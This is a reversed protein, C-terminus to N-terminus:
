GRYNRSPIPYATRLTGDPDIIVEIHHLDTGDPSRGIVEDGFDLQYKTGNRPTGDLLVGTNPFSVGDEVTERILEAIDDLDAQSLPGSRGQLHFYTKGANEPSGKIHRALVHQWGNYLTGDAQKHLDFLNPCPTTNHVLVSTTGALVFYTHLDNVSLNYAPQLTKWQRVKDVQVTDGDGTRLTDGANLDAADTWTRTKVSWFPHHDTATVTSEGRAASLTVDTFDRDDPTYITAEVRRPGSAGTVPDAAQVTDGVRVQEIPKTTRDGM